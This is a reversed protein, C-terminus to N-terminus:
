KELILKGNIKEFDDFQISYIYLGPPYGTLNIECNNKFGKKVMIQQGFPNLISISFKNKLHGFEFYYKAKSPNPFVKVLLNKKPNAFGVYQYYCGNIDPNNYKITGNERFCNLFLGFDAGCDTHFPHIIGDLSGIGEVWSEDFWNTFKIRKRFEGNLLQVTDVYDVIHIDSCYSDIITDGKTLSFDYLLLNQGNKFRFIRGLSDELLLSHFFQNLSSSDKSAYLKKYLNSNILSDGKIQYTVTNCSLGWCEVVNWIKNSNLFSQANVFSVIFVFQIIIISLRMKLM